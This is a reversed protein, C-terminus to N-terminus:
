ARTYDIKGGFVEVTVEARRLPTFATVTGEFEAHLMGLSLIDVFQHTVNEPITLWVDKSEDENFSVLVNPIPTM